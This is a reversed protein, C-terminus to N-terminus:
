LPFTIITCFVATWSVRRQDRAEDFARHFTLDLNQSSGMEDSAEIKSTLQGVITYLGIVKLQCFQLFPQLNSLDISGNSSLMGVM